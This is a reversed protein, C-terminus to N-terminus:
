RNQFYRFLKKRDEEQKMGREVSNPVSGPYARVVARPEHVTKGAHGLALSLYCDEAWYHLDLEKKIAVFPSLGIRAYDSKRCAFNAGWFYFHRWPLFKDMDFFWFSALNGFLDNKFRVKGGVATVNPDKLPQTVRELWHSDAVSDGDICAVFECETLEFARIRAFIPGSGETHWEDVTVNSMGLRLATNRAIEATKDSCNHAVVVIQHPRVSQRSVSELCEEICPEENHAIILVSREMKSVTEYTRKAPVSLTEGTELVYAVLNGGYVCGDDLGFTNGTFYRRQAAWHGYFVPKEGHYFVHWPQDVETGLESKEANWTRIECLTKSDTSDPTKNPVLGAHVAIFDDTEIFYPLGVFWEHEEQTLGSRIRRFREHSEFKKGYAREHNGSLCEFGREFVFKVVRVSDPGKNILDGLLIVRDGEKPDLMSVLERLEDLCGHVDGIFITRM